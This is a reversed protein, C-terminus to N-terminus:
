VTEDLLTLNAEAKVPTVVDCLLPAALFSLNIITNNPKDELRLCRRAAEELKKIKDAHQVLAATPVKQIAHAARVAENEMISQFLAQKDELSMDELRALEDDQRSEVAGSDTRAAATGGAGSLFLRTKWKGKSSWKRITDLPVGLKEAIGALPVRQAYLKYGRERLEPPHSQGVPNARNSEM